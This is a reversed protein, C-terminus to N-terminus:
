ARGFDTALWEEISTFPFNQAHHPGPHLEIASMRDIGFLRWDDRHNDYAVLYWQQDCLVHRFPEVLRVSSRGDKAKYTFSLRSESAVADAIKGLQPWLSPSTPARQIETSMATTTARRRLRAPLIHELKVRVEALMSDDPMGAELLLLATVLTTIEDANLLLPPIKVSPRLEYIAGPGPRSYVDYGLARLRGVDRRVTRESVGLWRALEAM